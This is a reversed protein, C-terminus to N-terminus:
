QLVEPFLGSASSCSYGSCLYPVLSFYFLVFLFGLVLQQLQPFLEATSYMYNHYSVKLGSGELIFSYLTTEWEM